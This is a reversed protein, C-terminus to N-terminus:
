PQKAPHKVVMDFASSVRPINIQHPQPLALHSPPAVVKANSMYDTQIGRHLLKDTVQVFSNETSAWLSSSNLSNELLDAGSKSSSGAANAQEEMDEAKFAFEKQSNPTTAEFPELKIKKESKMFYIRPSHSQVITKEVALLGNRKISM